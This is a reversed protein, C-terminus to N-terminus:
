KRLKYKEILHKDLLMGQSTDTKVEKFYLNNKHIQILTNKKFTYVDKYNGIIWTHTNDSRYIGSDIYHENNNHTKESVEIYLNGTIEYKADYKIEYGQVTEGINYQDELNEYLTLNIEGGM